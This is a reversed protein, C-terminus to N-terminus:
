RDGPGTNQYTRQIARALDDITVPSSNLRVGKSSLKRTFAVPFPPELGAGLLLEPQALVQKPRGSAILEGKKLVAVLGAFDVVDELFHTILVITTGKELQLRKLALLIQKKAQPDLGAGPEDLVLAPTQMALIGAIAVRRSIGGSLTAPDIQLIGAPLGVDKLATEVRHKVENEDLGLNRPGFAIDEYVSSSFIQREPFQFVLGVKSWLSNRNIRTSIDDGFVSVRGSTPQLLGNFHQVLTSKGSGSAGVLAFFEGEPIELDIDKLAVTELPTGKFYIHTLKTTQVFPM